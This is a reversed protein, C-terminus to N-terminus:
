TTDRDALQTRVFTRLMLAESSAAFGRRVHKGRGQIDIVTLWICPRGINGPTVSFLDTQASQNQPRRQTSGDGFAAESMHVELEPRVWNRQNRRAVQRPGNFNTYWPVNKPPSM